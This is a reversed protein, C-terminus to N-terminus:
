HWPLSISQEALFSAYTTIHCCSREQIQHNELIEVNDVGVIKDLKNAVTKFFNNFNDFCFIYFASLGPM